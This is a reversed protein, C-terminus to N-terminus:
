GPVAVGLNGVDYAFVLTAGRGTDKFEMHVVFEVDIWTDPDTTSVFRRQQTKRASKTEKWVSKGFGGVPGAGGGINALQPQGIPIVPALNNSAARNLMNNIANALTIASPLDIASTLSPILRGPQSAVAQDRSVPCVPAVSTM